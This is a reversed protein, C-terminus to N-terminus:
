MLSTTRVRQGMQLVGAMGQAVVPSFIIVDREDGQFGHAIDVAGQHSGLRDLEERLYYSQASFPTVVGLSLWRSDGEKM